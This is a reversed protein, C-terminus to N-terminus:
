RGPPAAPRRFSEPVSFIYRLGSADPVPGPNDEINRAGVRWFIQQAAGFNDTLFQQFNDGPFRPAIQIVRPATSSSIIEPSTFTSGRPFSPNTSLQLVYGIQTPFSANVVSTFTFPTYNVVVQGEVPSQPIPRNLPTALGQATARDSVFFCFDGAGTSGGTTTTGGTTAGGTTTTTLGTAGGTTAGGTAGGTLGGGTVGGGTTGGTGTTGPLDLRSIRYVLAVQYLYPQGPTVGQASVPTSNLGQCTLSGVNDQNGYSFSRPATTDLAQTVSGDVVLVPNNLVDNRYILWQVNNPGRHFLDLRWRVLVAPTGGPALTAETTVNQAAQNNSSRGQSLLVFVLGLVLAIAIFQSANGRSRQRQPEFRIDGAPQGQQIQQGGIVNLQPVEFVITVRDGPQLGKLDRGVRITASDPDVSTVRATAVQEERTRSGRTVIVEQNVKYGDRTGRNILAETERTNLVTAEPLKQRNITQMARAAATSLADAILIEPETAAPRVTSLGEEAAGNEPLGSAANIIIVRVGVVAQKGGSVDRVGYGVVEGTVIRRVNLEQALRLLSTRDTVPQQLGLTEVARRVEETPAVVFQERSPLRQAYLSLEDAVKQAALAGYNNGNQTKNVFDVVAWRPIDRLQAEARTAAVLTLFPLVLAIAVLHCILRGPTSNLFRRV